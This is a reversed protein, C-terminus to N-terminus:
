IDGALTDEQQRLEAGNGQREQAEKHRREGQGKRKM